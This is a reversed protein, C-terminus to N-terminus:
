LLKEIADMQKESASRETIGCFYQIYKDRKESDQEITKFDFNDFFYLVDEWPVNWVCGSYNYMTEPACSRIKEIFHFNQKDSYLPNAPIQIHVSPVGAIVSELVAFTRIHVCFKAHQLIKMSTFEPYFEDDAGTIFQQSIKTLENIYQKGHKPRSKVIINFQNQKALNGVRKIIDKYRPYKLIKSFYDGKYLCLSILASIVRSHYRAFIDLFPYRHMFKLHFFVIDSNKSYNNRKSHYFNDFMDFLASGTVVVKENLVQDIEKEYQEKQDKALNSMDLLVEKHLKLSYDSLVCTLDVSSYANLKLVCNDYFHSHLSVLPVGSKRIKQYQYPYTDPNDLFNEYDSVCGCNLVVVDSAPLLSDSLNRVQDYEIIKPKGFLFKPLLHKSPRKVGKHIKGIQSKDLALNVIHGRRLAEDIVGGIVKFFPLRQIVFTIKAM